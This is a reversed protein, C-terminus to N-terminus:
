DTVSSVQFVICKLSFMKCPSATFVGYVYVTIETRECSMSIM